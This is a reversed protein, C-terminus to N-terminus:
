LELTTPAFAEEVKFRRNTIGQEFAYDLFTEVTKRDDRLSYKWPDRPKAADSLFARRDAASLGELWEREEEALVIAHAGVKVAPLAIKSGPKDEYDKLTKITPDNTNLLLNM